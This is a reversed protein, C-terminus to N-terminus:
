VGVEEMFRFIGLQAQAGAEDSLVLEPESGKKAPPGGFRAQLQGQLERSTTDAECRLGKSFEFDIQFAVRM